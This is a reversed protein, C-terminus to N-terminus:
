GNIAGRREGVLGAFLERSAGRAIAASRQRQEPRLRGREKLLEWALILLGRGLGRAVMRLRRGEGAQLVLKAEHRGYAEGRLTEGYAAAALGRADRHGVVWDGALAHALAAVVGAPADGSGLLGPLLERRILLYAPAPGALALGPEASHRDHLYLPQAPMGAPVAAGFVMGVREGEFAPLADELWEPTPCDGSLSLAILPREGAVAATILAPWRHRLNGEVLRVAAGMQALAERQDADGPATAGFLIEVAAPDGGQEERDLWGGQAAARMVDDPELADAVQEALSGAWVGERPLVRAVEEGGLTVRVVPVAVSPAPLPSRSLLELDLTEVAGPKADWGGAIAGHLYSLSQALEFGRVWLQRLRARESLALLAVFGRRVAAQEWLRHAFWRLPTRPTWATIRSIPLTALSEPFRAAILADGFGERRADRLRQATGLTFEHTASAGRDFAIPVGARRVRLGWEWDERRQRSHEESFGGVADFLPRPLSMNATLASVFTAGRAEGLLVFFDFWWLRAVAAAFGDEVPKPWYPGVLVGGPERDVHWRLHHRLLWPDAVVDDDLFLLLPAAAERAGHNRAAASGAGPNRLRRLSFPYAPLPDPDGPRDDDDVVLVEFSEAAVDQEALAALCRRLAQERRYTPIVVSLELQAGPERVPASRGAGVVEAPTAVPLAASGNAAGAQGRLSRRWRASGLFGGRLYEWSLRTEAADARGVARRRQTRLYQKVLWAWARPASLEREEVVLKTLAASLGIGYGLVAKRLAPADDRHQHFVFSEPEYVVRDGAALLRSLMYTDGGSETETGADLEPPFPAALAIVRERRIAMNAGVGMAAAHLPSIGQWDFSERRLGRALSAQREMRERAPTDLLYPFAPGTITAVSPHAFARALPRLLGPPVVCDDDVFAVVDGAAARLGANRANDLGRRDERVYRLGGAEVEARCDEDGPDNDVVITELPQPDLAAIAALLQSLYRRRRHTCVVVSIRPDPYEGGREGLRARLGAILERRARESDARRSLVAEALAPGRVRGPSPLDVRAAPVGDDLVLVHWREAPSFDFEGGGRRADILGTGIM